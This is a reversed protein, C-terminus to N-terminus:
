AAVKQLRLENVLPAVTEWSEIALLLTKDPIDTLSHAAKAETLQAMRLVDLM